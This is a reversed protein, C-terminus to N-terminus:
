RLFKQWKIPQSCLYKLNIQFVKMNFNSVITVWFWWIIEDCSNRLIATIVTVLPRSVYVLRIPWKGNYQGRLRTHMCNYVCSIKDAPEVTIVAIPPFMELNQFWSTWSSFSFESFWFVSFRIDVKGAYCDNRHPKPVFFSSCSDFVARFIACTFSGPPTPFFPLFRKGVFRPIKFVVWKAQWAQTRAGVNSAKMLQWLQGIFHKAKMPASIFKLPRM